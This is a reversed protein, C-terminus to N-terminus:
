PLDAKVFHVLGAVFSIVLLIGTYLLPVVIQSVSSAAFDGISKWCFLVDIVQLFSLQPFFLVLLNVITTVLFLYLLYITITVGSKKTFAILCHLISVLALVVPLLLLCTIAMQKFFQLSFGTFGFAIGGFLIGVIAAIGLLFASYIFSTIFKAFYMKKRNTEFSLTNRYTGTSFDQGFVALAIPLILFAIVNETIFDHAMSASTQPMASQMENVDQIMETDQEAEIVLFEKTTGSNTIVVLILVLVLIGVLAIYTNRIAVGKRLRYFDASIINGM